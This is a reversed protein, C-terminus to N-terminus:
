HYTKIYLCQCRYIGVVVGDDKAQTCLNYKILSEVKARTSYNSLPQKAYINFIEFDM